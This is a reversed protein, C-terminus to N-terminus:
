VCSFFRHDLPGVRQSLLHAQLDPAFVLRSGLLGNWCCSLRPSRFSLGDLLIVLVKTALRSFEQGHKPWRGSLQSGFRNILTGIRDQMGPEFLFQLGNELLTRRGACLDWFPAPPLVPVRKGGGLLQIAEQGGNSQQQDQIVQHPMATIIQDVPTGLAPEAQQVGGIGAGPEIHGFRHLANNDSPCEFAMVDVVHFHEFLPEGVGDGPPIAMGSREDPSALAMGPPVAGLRSAVPNAPRPGGGM